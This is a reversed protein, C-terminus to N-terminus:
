LLYWIAVQSSELLLGPRFEFNKQFLQPDQLSELQPGRKLGGLFHKLQQVPHPENAQMSSCKNVTGNRDVMVFSEKLLEPPM